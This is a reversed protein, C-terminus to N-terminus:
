VEGLVDAIRKAALGDGYPNSTAAMAAREKPNRLLWVLEESITDRTVGVLRANGAAVGEPRETTRRM